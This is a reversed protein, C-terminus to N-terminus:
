RSEPRGLRAILRARSRLLLGRIASGSCRMALGAEDASYGDIEVLEWATLERESLEHEAIQLLESSRAHSTPTEIGSRGPSPSARHEIATELSRATRGGGRKGARLGRVLDVMTRDAIKGLFALFSGPGADRFGTESSPIVRAWIEQAVDEIQMSDELMPWVRNRRIRARLLPSFHEHLAPFASEDGQRWRDLHAVTQWAADTPPGSAPRHSPPDQLPPLSDRPM